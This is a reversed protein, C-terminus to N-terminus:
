DLPLLMLRESGAQPQHTQEVDQWGLSRYLAHAAVNRPDVALMLRDSDPWLGRAVHPLQAVCERGLGMGQYRRDIMLAHLTTTRGSAWPPLLTARKLLFFGRPVEEVLVVFGQIDACPKAGLAHLAGHIDGVYLTQSPLLQIDLLQRHQWATLSQYSILAIPM